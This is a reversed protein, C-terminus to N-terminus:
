GDSGKGKTKKPAAKEAILDKLNHLSVFELVDAPIEGGISLQKPVMLSLRQICRKTPTGNADGVIMSLKRANRTQQTEENSDPTAKNM